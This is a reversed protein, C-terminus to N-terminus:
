SEEMLYIIGEVHMCVLMLKHQEYYALRCPRQVSDDKHEGSANAVLVDFGENDLNLVLVRHNRFDAVLIENGSLRAMHRPDDLYCSSCDSDGFNCTDADCASVRSPFEKLFKLNNAELKLEKVCGVKSEINEGRKISQLLLYRGPGGPHEIIHQPSDKEISEPLLWTEFEGNCRDYVLVEKGETTILIRNDSTMSLAVPNPTTSTTRCDICVPSLQIEKKSEPSLNKVEDIIEATSIKWLCAKANDPLYLCADVDCALLDFPKVVGILTVRCVFEFSKLGAKRKYVTLKNFSDQVAFVYLSELVSSCVGFIGRSKM